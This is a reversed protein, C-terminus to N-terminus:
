RRSHLRESRRKAIARAPSSRPPWDVCGGGPHERREVEIQPLDLGDASNADGAGLAPRIAGAASAALLARIAVGPDGRLLPAARALRPYNQADLLRRLVRRAADLDPPALCLM